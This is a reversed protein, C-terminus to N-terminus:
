QEFIYLDTAKKLFFDAVYAKNFGIIKYGNEYEKVNLIAIYSQKIPPISWRVRVTYINNSYHLLKIEVDSVSVNQSSVTDEVPLNYDKKLMKWFLEDFVNPNVKYNHSKKWDYKAIFPYQLWRQQKGALRKYIKNLVKDSAPKSLEKKDLDGKYFFYKGYHNISNKVCITDIYDGLNRKDKTSIKNLFPLIINKIDEQKQIYNKRILNTEEETQLNLGNFDLSTFVYSFLGWSNIYLITNGLMIDLVYGQSFTNQQPYLFYRNLSFSYTNGQKIKQRKDSCLFSQKTTVIYVIVNFTDIKTTATIVYGNKIATIKHIYFPYYVDDQILFSLGKVALFVKKELTDKPFYDKNHELYKENQGLLNLWFFSLLIIIAKKFSAM